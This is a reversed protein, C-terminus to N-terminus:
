NVSAGWVITDVRLGSLEIFDSLEILEVLATFLSLLQWVRIIQKVVLLRCGVSGLLRSLLADALLLAFRIVGLELSGIESRRLQHLTVRDVDLVAYPLLEFADGTDEAVSVGGDATVDVGDEQLM